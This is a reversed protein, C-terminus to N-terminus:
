ASYKTCCLSRAVYARRRVGASPNGAQPTRTRVTCMGCVERVVRAPRGRWARRAAKADPARPPSSECEFTARSGMSVEVNSTAAHPQLVPAGPLGRLAAAYVALAHRSPVLSPRHSVDPAFGSEMPPLSSASVVRGVTRSGVTSVWTSPTRARPTSVSAPDLNARTSAEWLHFCSHATCSFRVLHRLETTVSVAAQRCAGRAPVPKLWLGENRLKQTISSLLAPAQPSQIFM